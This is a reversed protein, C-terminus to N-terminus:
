FIAKVNRRGMLIIFVISIVSIVYNNLNAPWTMAVTESLSVKYFIVLGIIPIFALAALVYNFSMALKYGWKKKRLLGISALLLFVGLVWVYLLDYKLRVDPMQNWTASTHRNISAAVTGILVILFWIVNAYIIKPM